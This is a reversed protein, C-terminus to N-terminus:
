FTDYDANCFQIQAPDFSSDFLCFGIPLSDKPTLYEKLFEYLWHNQSLSFIIKKCGLKYSLSKISQILEKIQHREIKGVEGIYLHTKAKILMQFGNKQVVFVNKKNTKYEFFDMDKKIYGNGNNFSHLDLQEPSIKYKAIKKNLYKDYWPSLVPYASSLECLPFTKINLEFKKMCGHFEWNLKHKFGPYSNQNPFGFIMKIGEKEALQYTEKALRTFLGQKRHNPATMTDGSQAVVYDKNNYSLRVPFVGYYAAPAKKEDIALMGINKLGFKQTDYKLSIAEMSHISGFSVRYLYQIDKYSHDSLKISKYM